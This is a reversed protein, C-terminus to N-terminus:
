MVQPATNRSPNGWESMENEAREQEASELGTLHMNQQAAERLAALERRFNHYYRMRKGVIEVLKELTDIESNEM